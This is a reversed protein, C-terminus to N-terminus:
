FATRRTAPRVPPPAAPAPPPAPAAAAVAALRAKAMFSRWAAHEADSAPTGAQATILPARQAAEKWAAESPWGFAECWDPAAPRIAPQPVPLVARRTRWAHMALLAARTHDANPGRLARRLRNAERRGAPYQDLWALAAALADPAAPKRPPATRPTGRTVSVVQERYEPAVESHVCPIIEPPPLPPPYASPAPAAMMGAVRAALTRAKRSDRHALEAAITALTARDATEVLAAIEAGGMRIMPRETRALM